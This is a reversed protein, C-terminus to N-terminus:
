PRRAGGGQQRQRELMRAVGARHEEYTASFFHAGDGLGTAVFFLAGNELPRTVARLAGRGPLAIPTPPLGGRTYTNYPTDTELDRNRIDGDYRAGIGYIITPDSQLRMNRRLRATFVGAIQPREAALGTEKEVISALILAQYPNELPLDPARSAWAADLEQQMQRYSLALIELDTTGDAFRVTDPFFRGEPHEGAHGLAAMVDADSRGRQTVKIRPHSQLARRLDAFTWGEIVTLTELVVRGAALQAVVASASAGAPLEYTGARVRPSDGSLRLWLETRRADRLAGSHEVSALVSRLGEGPVVHVRVAAAHPGPELMSAELGRWALLAAVGLLLLAGCFILILRKVSV